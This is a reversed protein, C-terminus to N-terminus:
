GSHDLIIYRSVCDGVMIWLCGSHDVLMWWSRGNDGHDLTMGTIWFCGGHDLIIWRSGGGDM